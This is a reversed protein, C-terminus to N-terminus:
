HSDVILVQDFTASRSIVWRREHTGNLRTKLKIGDTVASNSLLLTDEVAASRDSPVPQASTLERFSAANKIAESYVDRDM